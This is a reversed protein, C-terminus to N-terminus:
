DRRNKPPRFGYCIRHSKILHREWERVTTWEKKQKSAKNLEELTAVWIRMPGFDGIVTSYYSFNKDKDALQQLDADFDVEGRHTHDRTINTFFRKPWREAVTRKSIEIYSVATPNPNGHKVHFPKDLVWMFVVNRDVKTAPGHFAACFAEHLRERSNSFEQSVEVPLVRFPNFSFNDNIIGQFLPDNITIGTSINESSM